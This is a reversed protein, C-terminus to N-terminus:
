EWGWLGKRHGDSPQGYRYHHRHPKIKRWALYAVLFTSVVAMAYATAVLVMETEAQTMTRCNIKWLGGELAV